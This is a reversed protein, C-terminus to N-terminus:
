GWQRIQRVEFLEPRDAGNIAPRLVTDADYHFGIESLDYSKVHTEFREPLVGKWYKTTM